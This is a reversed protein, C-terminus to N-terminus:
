CEKFQSLLEIYKIKNVFYYLININHHSDKQHYHFHM